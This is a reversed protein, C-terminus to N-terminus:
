ASSQSGSDHFINFGATVELHLSSQTGNHLSCRLLTNDKSKGPVSWGRQHQPGGAHRQSISSSSPTSPSPCSTALPPPPPPLVDPTHLAGLGPGPGPRECKPQQVAPSSTTRQKMVTRVQMRHNKGNGGKHRRRTPM